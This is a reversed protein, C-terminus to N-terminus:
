LGLDSEIIEWCLQYAILTKELSHYGSDIVVSFTFHTVSGRNVSFTDSFHVFECVFACLPIELLPSKGFSNRGQTVFGVIACFHVM